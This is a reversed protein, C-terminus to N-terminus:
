KRIFYKEIDSFTKGLTEPLFLYMFVFGGANLAGMTYFLVDLTIVDLMFPFIKVIVFMLVYALSVMLGGLKGKVKTPLLEGILAWPIVLYGLSSFAVYGLVCYLTMNDNILNSDSTLSKLNNTSNTLNSYTSNDSSQIVHSGGSTFIGALISTACMGLASTFMLPRRGNKKSILASIIAMIFRITGLSVLAVYADISHQYQGGITKFFTVAYFLIAYACSAQEFIFIILLIIFPKYVIPEACLRLYEKLTLFLSKHQRENEYSINKLGSIRCLEQQYM